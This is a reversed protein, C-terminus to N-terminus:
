STNMVDKVWIVRVLFVWDITESRSWLIFIVLMVLAGCLSNECKITVFIIWFYVAYFSDQLRVFFSEWIDEEGSGGVEVFDELHEKLM